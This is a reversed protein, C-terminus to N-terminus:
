AREATDLSSPLWRLPRVRHFADGQLRSRNGCHMLHGREGRCGRRQLADFGCALDGRIQDNDYHPHRMSMM